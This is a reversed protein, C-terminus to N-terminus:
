ATPSSPTLMVLFLPCLDHGYALVLWRPSSTTFGQRRHSGSGAMASRYRIFRLCSSSAFAQSAGGRGPRGGNGRTVRLLSSTQNFTVYALVLAACDVGAQARGTGHVKEADGFPAHGATTSAGFAAAAVFDPLCRSPALVDGYTARRAGVIRLIPLGCAALYERRCRHPGSLDLLVRIGRARNGGTAFAFTMMAVDASPAPPFM